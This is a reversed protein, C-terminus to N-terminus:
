IANLISLQDATRKDCIRYSFDSYGGFIRYKSIFPPCLGCISILNVYGRSKSTIKGIYLIQKKSLDRCYIYRGRKLSAYSKKYFKQKM